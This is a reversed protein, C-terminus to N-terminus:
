AVYNALELKWGRYLSLGSIIRNIFRYFFIYLRRGQWYFFLWPRSNWMKM